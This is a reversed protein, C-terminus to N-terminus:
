KRDSGFKRCWHDERILAVRQKSREEADGVARGPSPQIGMAPFLNSSAMTARVVAPEGQGILTATNMASPTCAAM